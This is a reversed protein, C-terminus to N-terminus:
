ILNTLFIELGILILIIGGFLTAKNSLKTGFKKGIITGALCLIFTVMAIITIAVLVMALTHSAFTFGVSLADISTAVAQVLVAAFTLSKNAVTEEHKCADIIMKIGIFLLLALAIYPIFKEFVTFFSLLYHVCLWGILPMIGQFIGFTLSILVMKPKSMEKQSLGNALSVSFADMSLALGLLLSNAFFMFNM